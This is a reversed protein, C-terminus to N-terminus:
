AVFAAVNAVVSERAGRTKATTQLSDHTTGLFVADCQHARFLLRELAMSRKENPMLQILKSDIDGVYPGVLRKLRMYICHITQERLETKIVVIQYMPILWAVLADLLRNLTLGFFDAVSDLM